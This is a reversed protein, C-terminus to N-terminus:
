GQCLINYSPIAHKICLYRLIRHEKLHGVTKALADLLTLANGEWQIPLQALAEEVVGRHSGDELGVAAESRDEDVLGDARDKVPDVNTVGNGNRAIDGLSYFRSTFLKWDLCECLSMIWLVEPDHMRFGCHVQKKGKEKGKWLYLPRWRNVWAPADGNEEPPSLISNLHWLLRYGTTSGPNYCALYACFWLFVSEWTKVKTSFVFFERALIFM